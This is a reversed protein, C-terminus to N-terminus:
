FGSVRFWSNQKANGLDIAILELSKMVCSILTARNKEISDPNLELNEFIRDSDQGSSTNMEILIDTMDALLFAGPQKGRTAVNDFLDSPMIYFGFKEMTNKKIITLIRRDREKTEDLEVFKFDQQGLIKDTHVVMCRSMHRYLVFALTYDRFQEATMNNRLEQAIKRLIRRNFM